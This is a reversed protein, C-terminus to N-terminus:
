HLSVLELDAELAGFKATAFNTAVMLAIGDASFLLYYDSDDALDSAAPVIVRVKEGKM